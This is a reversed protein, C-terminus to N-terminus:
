HVFPDAPFIPDLRVVADAESALRRAILRDPWNAGALTTLQEAVLREARVLRDQAAQYQGQRHLAMSQISLAPITVVPDAPHEMCRDLAQLAADADGARYEALGLALLYWSLFQHNPGAREVAARAISRLRAAEEPSSPPILLGAKATRDLDGPEASTGFRELMRRCHQRYAERDGHEVELVALNLWVSSDQANRAGAEGPAADGEVARRLNALAPSWQGRAGLAMGMGFYPRAPLDGLVKRFDPRPRSTDLLAEAESRFKRLEADTPAIGEMWFVSRDFYALAKPEEGLRWHAMALFFGSHSYSQDDDGLLRLSEELEAIAGIWDGARYLAVGFTNRLMGSKPEAKVSARALRVALSVGRPNPTPDSATVLFWAVNNQIAPTVGPRRELDEVSGPDLQALFPYVAWLSARLRLAERFAALAGTKDGRRQLIRGVGFHAVANEPGLGIAARYDALAADIDNGLELLRGHNVLATSIRADARVKAAIQRLDDGIRVDKAGLRIALLLPTVAARPNGSAIREEARGQFKRALEDRRSGAAGAQSIAAIAHEVVVEAGAEEKRALAGELIESAIAAAEGARGERALVRALLARAHLTRIHGPGLDAALALSERRFLSEARSWDSTVAALALVVETLSRLEDHNPDVARCMVGWFRDADTWAVDYKKGQYLTRVLDNMTWFTEKSVEGHAHIRLELAQRLIEAARDPNGRAGFTLAYFHLANVTDTSEPGSVRAQAEHLHRYYEPARDDSFPFLLQGIEAMTLLTDPDEPGLARQQRKLVEEGITRAEALNGLERLAAVLQQQSRLTERADPGLHQTRLAAAARRHSGAKAHDGLNWYTTGMQAHITAALLPQGAFRTDITADARALAEGITMDTGQGKGPAAAGILDVVLFDAVAQAERAKADAESHAAQAEEARRRALAHAQRETQALSNARDRAQAEAGAINRFHNAALGAAIAGGVLLALVTSMLGAVVPNRRSWRWVRETTSVRRTLIPRDDIFQRLDAAMALADRYRQAPEKALAKLVITELDRPVRRDLRRPSAPPEHQIRDLLKARNVEGFLSQLTLLEYLTAGLSYVDSRRDSHGEFREPAMYRLTGLVDGTRTLGDSGEAKALGFDTIWVTGRTDVLLNSPKIDRHLVGQGHAYALGDAVQLALGAVQRFYRRDHLGTLETHSTQGSASDVSRSGSDAPRPTGSRGPEALTHAAVATAVPTPPGGLLERAVTAAITSSRSAKGAPDPRDNRLRRLEDIVADLGQGHIFQMAYYHVGESEGVGFVPVINTHHLKAASRAELQFRELQSRAGVAQWPLVKLAVHRGLSQQVAEYVVGMGGRAIERLITYDGLQRPAGRLTAARPGAQLSDTAEGDVSLDRELQVLAPLLDRIEDALDPHKAAYEEISPREGRRFRELFSEAMVDIPDREADSSSGSDSDSRTPDM